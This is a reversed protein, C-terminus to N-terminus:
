STRRVECFQFSKKSDGHERKGQRAALVFSDFTLPCHYAGAFPCAYVEMAVNVADNNTDDPKAGSSRSEALRELVEEQNDQAEGDDERSRKRSQIDESSVHDQEGEEESARSRKQLKIDCKYVVRDAIMDVICAIHLVAPEKHRGEYGLNNASLGASVKDSVAQDLTAPHPHEHGAAVGINVPSLALRHLIHLYPFRKHLRHDPPTTLRALGDSCYAECYLAALKFPYM